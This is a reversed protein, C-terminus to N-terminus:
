CCCVYCGLVVFKLLVFLSFWIMVGDWNGGLLMLSGGVLVLFWGGWVSCSGLILDKLGIGFFGGVGGWWLGDGIIILEFVDCGGVKNGVLLRLEFLWFGLECYFIFKCWFMVFSLMLVGGWFLVFVYVLLVVWVRIVWVLCVWVVGMCGVMWNLCFRFGGWFGGGM